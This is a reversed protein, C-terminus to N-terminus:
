SFSSELAPFSTPSLTASCITDASAENNLLYSARTTQCSKGLSTTQLRTSGFHPDMHPRPSCERLTLVSSAKRPRKADREYSSLDYGESSVLSEFPQFNPSLTTEHILHVQVCPKSNDKTVWVPYHAEDAEMFIIGPKRCRSMRSYKQVQLDMALDDCLRHLYNLRTTISGSRVSQGHRCIGLLRSCSVNNFAEPIM